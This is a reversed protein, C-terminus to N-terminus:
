HYEYKAVFFAQAPDGIQIFLILSRHKIKSPFNFNESVNTAIRLLYIVGEEWKISKYFFIKVTLFYFYQM